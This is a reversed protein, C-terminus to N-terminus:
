LDNLKGARRFIIKFENENPQLNQNFNMPVNNKLKIAAHFWILIFLFSVLQTNKIILVEICM